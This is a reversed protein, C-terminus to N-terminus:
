GALESIEKLHLKFHRPYDAVMSRLSVEDGLASVWENWLKGPNINQIVHILHLNSFRWFSVLTEWDEEQYNQITIWQDNNGLNAYDPFHSPNEDYHLHIIRHTNNSASDALHGVIQRITRNQSNKRVSIIDEPLALLKEYWEGVLVSLEDVVPVFDKMATDKVQNVWVSHSSLGSFTVGSAEKNIKDWNGSQKGSIETITLKLIVIFEVQKQNFVLDGTAGNHSMIIRLGEEKRDFDSIIEVNGYGVVSRYTAAWKCAVKDPVIEAVQEMEFCVRSNKKLLEIKRGEPASHIYICNDRYGYNFPLIYPLDGDLLALRCIKSGALIKELIKKDTIEQDKKRM